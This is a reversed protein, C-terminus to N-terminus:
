FISTKIYNGIHRNFIENMPIFIIKEIRRIEPMPTINNDNIDNNWIMMDLRYSTFKDNLWEGLKLM